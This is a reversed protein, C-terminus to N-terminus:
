NKSTRPHRQASPQGTLPSAPGSDKFSLLFFRAAAHARASISRKVGAPLWYVEGERLNETPGGQISYAPSSPRVKIQSGDMAILLASVAPRKDEYRSKPGLIGSEAVIEDTEFLPSGGPPPASYWTAPV